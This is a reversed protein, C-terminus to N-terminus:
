NVMFVDTNMDPRIEPRIMSNASRMHALSCSAHTRLRGHGPVLVECQRNTGKRWQIHVKVSGLEYRVDFSRACRTKYVLVNSHIWGITTHRGLSDARIYSLFFICFAAATKSPARNESWAFLEPIGSSDSIIYNRYVQVSCTAARNIKIFLQGHAPLQTM